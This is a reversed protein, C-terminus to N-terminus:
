PTESREFRGHRELIKIRYAVGFQHTRTVFTHPDGGEAQATTRMRLSLLELAKLAEAGELLEFLGWATVSRWNSFNEILDVEFCVHPDKRMAQLKTGEASYCYVANGDYAYALPTIHMKGHESYGIRGITGARFVADIEDPNLTGQETM